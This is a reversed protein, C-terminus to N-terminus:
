KDRVAKAFKYVDAKNKSGAALDLKSLNAPLAEVLALAAAEIKELRKIRGVLHILELREEPFLRSTALLDALAPTDM